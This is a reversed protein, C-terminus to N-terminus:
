TCNGASLMAMAAEIPHRGDAGALLARQRDLWIRYVEVPEIELPIGAVRGPAPISAEHSGPFFIWAAGAALAVVGMCGLIALLVGRTPIANPERDPDHTM